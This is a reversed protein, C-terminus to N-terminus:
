PRTRKMLRTVAVECGVIVNLDLLYTCKWDFELAGHFRSHQRQVITQHQASARNEFHNNVLQHVNWPNLM